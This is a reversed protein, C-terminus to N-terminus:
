EMAAYEADYYVLLEKLVRIMNNTSVSSGAFADILAQDAISVTNEIGHYNSNTFVSIGDFDASAKGILWPIFSAEIQAYSAGDPIPDYDTWNGVTFGEPDEDFSITTLSGDVKDIQVYVTQLYHTHALSANNSLYAIQFDVTDVQEYEFLIYFPYEVENGMGDIHIFTPPLVAEYQQNLQAYQFLLTTYDANLENYTEALTEYSATIQDYLANIVELEADKSSIEFDKLAVIGQLTSLENTKERLDALAEAYDSSCTDNEITEILGEVQTTLEANREELEVIRERATDLAAIAQRITDEQEPDNCASLGFVVLIVLGIYYLKKM